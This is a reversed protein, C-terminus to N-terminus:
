HRHRRHHVLNSVAIVFEAMSKDEIKLHNFLEQGVRSVLNLIELRKMEKSSMTVSLRQTNNPFSPVSTAPPLSIGFTSEEVIPRDRGKARDQREGDNVDNM